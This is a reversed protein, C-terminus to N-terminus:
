RPPSSPPLLPSSPEGNESAQTARRPAPPASLLIQEMQGLAEGLVKRHNTTDDIFARLSKSITNEQIPKRPDFGPEQMTVGGDQPPAPQLEMAPFELIIRRGDALKVNRTIPPLEESPRLVWGPPLPSRPRPPYPLYVKDGATEGPSASPEGVLVEPAPELGSMAVSPVLRDEWTKEEVQTEVEAEAEADTDEADETPAEADEGDETTADDDTDEPSEEATSEESSDDSEQAAIPLAAFSLGLIASLWFTPIKM